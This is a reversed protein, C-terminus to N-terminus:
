SEDPWVSARAQDADVPSWQDPVVCLQDSTDTYLRGYRRLVPAYREGTTDLTLIREGRWAREYVMPEAGDLRAREPHVLVVEHLHLYM